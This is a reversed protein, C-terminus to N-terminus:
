EIVITVQWLLIFQPCAQGPSCKPAGSARLSTRGTRVAAYTATLRGDGDAVPGRRRLLPAGVEHLGSWRLGAGVLVVEIRRGVQVRV